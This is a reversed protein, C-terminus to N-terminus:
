RIARRPGKELAGKGAPIFRQVDDVTLAKVKDRDEDGIRAHFGAIIDRALQGSKKHGPVIVVYCVTNAIVAEVPGSVVGGEKTMGIALRLDANHFYNKKGYIMFSGKTLYEGAPASKSVQSGQVWFVDLTTYGMGWAKSYSATAQAVQNLVEESVEEDGEVKVTMFPSGALDSHFVIDKDSTHKKIIIENTTADRGGIVLRGDTAKFWRFVEYWAREKQVRLRVPTAVEIEATRADELKSRTRTIAEEAGKIKERSKKARKYYHQANEVASKSLDVTVRVSYGDRGFTILTASRGPLM